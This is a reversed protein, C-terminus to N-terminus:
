IMSKEADPSLMGMKGKMKFCNGCQDHPSLSLISLLNPGMRCDYSLDIKSSYANTERLLDPSRQSPNDRSRDRLSIMRPRSQWIVSTPINNVSNFDENKLIVGRHLVEFPLLRVFEPISKNRLDYIECGLSWLVNSM